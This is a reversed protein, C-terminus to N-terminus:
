GPEVHIHILHEVSCSCEEMQLHCNLEVHIHKKLHKFNVFQTQAFAFVFLLISLMSQLTLTKVHVLGFNEFQLEIWRHFNLEVHTQLRLREFKKSQNRAFVILLISPMFQSKPHEFDVRRFHEFLQEILQLLHLKVLIQGFRKSWQGIQLHFHLKVLIKEFCGFQSQEM